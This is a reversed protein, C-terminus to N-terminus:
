QRGHADAGDDGPPKETAAPVWNPGLRLEFGQTDLPITRSHKEFPLRTRIEGDDLAGNSNVTNGKAVLNSGGSMWLGPFGQNCQAKTLLQYTLETSSMIFNGILQTKSTGNAVITNSFAVIHSKRSVAIGALNCSQIVNTEAHLQAQHDISVGHGGCTSITSGCLTVSANAGRAM